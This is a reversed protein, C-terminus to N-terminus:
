DGLGIQPVGGRDMLDISCADCLDLQVILAGMGFWFPVTLRCREMCLNCVVVPTTLGIPQVGNREYEAAGDSPTATSCRIVPVATEPFGTDDGTMSDGRSNAAHRIMRAIPTDQGIFQRNETPALRRTEAMAADIQDALANVAPDSSSHM